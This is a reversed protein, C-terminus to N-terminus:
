KEIILNVRNDSLATIVYAQAGQLGETSPYDIGQIAIYAINLMACLQNTISLEGPTLFLENLDRLQEQPYDNSGDETLLLGRITIKYDDLSYLEKFTGNAGDMETLAIRKGGTIDIMPENPLRLGNLKTPMFYPMGLYSFGASNDDDFSDVRYDAGKATPQPKPLQFQKGRIGFARAYLLSINFDTM